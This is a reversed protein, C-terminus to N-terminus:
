SKRRNERERSIDATKGLRLVWLRIWVWRSVNRMSQAYVAPAKEWDGADSRLTLM